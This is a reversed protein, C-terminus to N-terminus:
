QDIEKVTNIVDLANCVDDHVDILETDQEKSTRESLTQQARNIHVRATRLVDLLFARDDNSHESM